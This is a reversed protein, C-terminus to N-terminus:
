CTASAEGGKPTSTSPEGGGSEAPGGRLLGHELAFAVISGLNLIMGTLRRVKELVLMKYLPLKLERMHKLEAAEEVDSHFYDGYFLLDIAHEPNLLVGDVVLITGTTGKLTQKWEAHLQGVERKMDEDSFLQWCAGCVRPIYLPEGRMYFQRFLMCFSRWDEEDLEPGEYERVEHGTGRITLCWNMGSQV